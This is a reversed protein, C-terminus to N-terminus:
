NFSDNTFSYIISVSQSKTWDLSVKVLEHTQKACAIQRLLVVSLLMRWTWCIWSSSLRKDTMALYPGTDRSVFKRSRFKNGFWMIVVLSVHSCWNEGSDFCAILSFLFFPFGCRLDCSAFHYCSIKGFLRTLNRGLDLQYKAAFSTVFRYSVHTKELDSNKEM